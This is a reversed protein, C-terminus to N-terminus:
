NSGRASQGPQLKEPHKNVMAEPLMPTSKPVAAIVVVPAVAREIPASKKDSALDTTYKKGNWSFLKKGDSRAKAFASKFDTPQAAQATAAEAKKSEEGMDPAESFAKRFEDADSAAQSAAATKVDVPEAVPAAESTAVPEADVEDATGAEEAPLNASADTDGKDAWADEYEQDIM